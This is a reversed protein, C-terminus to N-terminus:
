ITSAMEIYPDRGERFASLLWEEGAAWALARAEVSAFDCVILKKGRPAVIASRILSSLLKGLPLPSGAEITALDRTKVLDALSDVDDTPKFGGRPLNQLQVLRGAWRGT